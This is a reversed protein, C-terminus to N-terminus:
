ATIEFNIRRANELSFPNLIPTRFSAIPTSKAALRVPDGISMRQSSALRSANTIAVNICELMLWHSWFVRHFSM